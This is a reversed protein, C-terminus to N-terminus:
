HLRIIILMVIVITKLVQKTRMLFISKKIKKLLIDRITRINEQIKEIM